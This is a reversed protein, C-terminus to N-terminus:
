EMIRKELELIANSDPSVHTGGLYAENAYQDVKENYEDGSHGKVHVFQIGMDQRLEAVLEQYAKTYRNKAKWPKGFKPDPDNWFAIGKYDHYLIVNKAGALKARYLALSAAMIEGAVNNMTAMEENDYLRAARAIMEGNHNLIIAAGTFLNPKTKHYSGDTYIILDGPNLNPLKVSTEEKTTPTTTIENGALYAEAEENTKFSKYEAGPFGNVQTKCDDWNTFIGTNHGKKVAYYKAKAM